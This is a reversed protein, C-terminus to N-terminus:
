RAAAPFLVSRMIRQAAILNARASRKPAVIMMEIAFRRSPGAFVAATGELNPGRVLGFDGTSGHVSRIRVPRSLAAGPQRVQVVEQMGAWLDDVQRNNLLTAYAITMRAQGRQLRYILRPNTEGPRLQWGPGVTVIASNKHSPGLVLKSRAALRHHDAVIRSLLPWGATLLAMVTVIIVLWRLRVSGPLAAAAGGSGHL